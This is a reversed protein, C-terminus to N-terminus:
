CRCCGCRWWVTLVCGALAGPGLEGGEAKRAEELQEAAKAAGDAVKKIMDLAKRVLKKRIVKLGAATTTTHLPAPHIPPHPPPPRLTSRRAPWGQRSPVGGRGALAQPM